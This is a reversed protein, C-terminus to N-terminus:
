KKELKGAIAYRGPNLGPIRFRVQGPQAPQSTEVIAAEAKTFGNAKSWLAIKVHGRDSRLNDVVVTVDLDEVAGSPLAWLIAAVAVWLAFIAGRAPM